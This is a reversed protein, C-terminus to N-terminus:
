ELVDSSLGAMRNPKIRSVDISDVDKEPSFLQQYKFLMSLSKLMSDFRRQCISYNYKTRSESLASLKFTMAIHM